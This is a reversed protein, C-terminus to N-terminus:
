GSVELVPGWPGEGDAESVARVRFEYSGERFPMIGIDESDWRTGEIWGDSPHLLSQMNQWSRTSNDASAAGAGGGGSGSLQGAKAASPRCSRMELKYWPQQGGVGNSTGKLLAAAAPDAPGRAKWDIKLRYFAVSIDPSGAAKAQDRTLLVVEQSVLRLSHCEQLKTFRM